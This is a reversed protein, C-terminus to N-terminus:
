AALTATGLAAILCPIEDAPKPPSFYYGQAETCGEARLLEAQERTEVGEAITAM